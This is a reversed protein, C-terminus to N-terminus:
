VPGYAPYFICRPLIMKASRATKAHAGHGRAFELPGFAHEGPFKKSFQMAWVAPFAGFNNLFCM